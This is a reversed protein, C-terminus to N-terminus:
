RWVRIIYSASPLDLVSLIFSASDLCLIVCDFCYAEQAALARAAASSHCGSLWWGECDEIHVPVPPVSHRLWVGLLWECRLTLPQLLETVPTSAAWTLTRPEIGLLHRDKESEEIKTELREIWHILCFTELLILQLPAWSYYSGHWCRPLIGVIWDWMTVTIKVNSYRCPDTSHDYLGLM